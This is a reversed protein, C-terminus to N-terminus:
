DDISSDSNYSTFSDDPEETDTISLDSVSSLISTEYKSFSNDSDFDSLSLSSSHSTNLHNQNIHSSLDDQLADTGSNSYITNTNPPQESKDVKKTDEGSRINKISDLIKSFRSPAEQGNPNRHKKLKEVLHKAKKKRDSPSLVAWDIDGSKFDGLEGSLSNLHQVDDLCKHYAENFKEFEEKTVPEDSNTIPIVNTIHFLGGTQQQLKQDLEKFKNAIDQRLAGKAFPQKDDTIGIGDIDTDDKKYLVKGNDVTFRDFDLDRTFNNVNLQGNNIATNNIPM